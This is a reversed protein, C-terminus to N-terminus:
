FWFDFINFNHNSILIIKIYMFLLQFKGLQLYDTMCIIFYYFSSIIFHYFLLITFYYFSLNIFYYFSLIFLILFYFIFSYILSCIFSSVSLLFLRIFSFILLTNFSSSFVQGETRAIWCWRNEKKGGSRKMNKKQIWWKGDKKNTMNRNNRIFYFLHHQIARVSPCTKEEDKLM